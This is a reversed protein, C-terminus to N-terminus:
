GCSTEIVKLFAEGYRALKLAGVGGISAFQVLDRPRERLMQLLTADHFIVYAPVGQAHALRGREARLADWLAVEHPAIDLSQKTRESRQVRKEARRAARDAP